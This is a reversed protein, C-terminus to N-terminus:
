SFMFYVSFFGVIMSLIVTVVIAKDENRYLVITAGILVIACVIFYITMM